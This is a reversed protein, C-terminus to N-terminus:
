LKRLNKCREHADIINDIRKNLKDIEKALMKIAEVNDLFLREAESFKPNVGNVELERNVRQNLKQMDEAQAKLECTLKLIQTDASTSIVKETKKKKSGMKSVIKVMEEGMARDMAIYNPDTETKKAM